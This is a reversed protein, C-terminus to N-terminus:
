KWSIWFYGTTYRADRDVWRMERRLDGAVFARCIGKLARRVPMHWRARLADNVTEELFMGVTGWFGGMPWVRVEGFPGCMAQIKSPTFRSFDDPDAHVPYLFPTSAILVGGPALVRHMEMVAAEPNRVHELVECCVVCDMSCSAFPLECADALVDPRSAALINVYRWADIGSSPPRFSGRTRERQGGVDLVRGKMWLASAELYRDLLYRRYTLFGSGFVEGYAVKASAWPFNSRHLVTAPPASADETLRARGPGNVHEPADPPLRDTGPESPKVLDV